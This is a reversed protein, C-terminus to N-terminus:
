VGVCRELENSESHSGEILEFIQVFRTLRKTEVPQDEAGAEAEERDSTSCRAGGAEGGQACFCRLAPQWCRECIEDGDSM